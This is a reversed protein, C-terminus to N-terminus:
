SCMSSFNQVQLFSAQCKNCVTSKSSEVETVLTADDEPEFGPSEESQQSTANSAESRNFDETESWSGEECAAFGV